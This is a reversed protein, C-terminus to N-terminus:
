ELYLFKELTRFTERIPWLLAHVILLATIPWTNIGEVEESVDTTSQILIHGLRALYLWAALVIMFKLWM